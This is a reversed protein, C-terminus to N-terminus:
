LEQESQALIPALYRCGYFHENNRNFITIRALVSEPKKLLFDTTAIQEGDTSSIVRISMSLVNTLAKLALEDAYVGERRQDSVYEEFSGTSYRKVESTSDVFISHYAIKFMKFYKAKNASLEEAVMARLTLHDLLIPRSNNITALTAHYLCNGDGPVEIVELPREAKKGFENM